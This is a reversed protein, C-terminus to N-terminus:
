NIRMDTNEEIHSEDQLRESTRKATYSSFPETSLSSHYSFKSPDKSAHVQASILNSTILCSSQSSGRSINSATSDALVSDMLHSSSSVALPFPPDRASPTDVGASKRFIKSAIFCSWFHSTNRLASNCEQRRRKQYCTASRDMAVIASTGYGPVNSTPTQSPTRLSQVGRDHLSPSAYRRHVGGEEENIVRQIVPDFSSFLRRSHEPWTKTFMRYCTRATSRVEIMADAVCCKILDEYLDAVRQIEPADAWYELILLAYVCCRNNPDIELAKKIDIEALDLDAQWIYAQARRYLAKVPVTIVVLKFLVLKHLMTLPKLEELKFDLSLGVRFSLEKLSTLQNLGQPLSSHPFSSITLTKLNNNNHTFSMLSKSFVGVDYRLDLTELRPPFLYHPEVKLNPCHLLRLYTINSMMRMWTPLTSGVYNQISLKELSKHPELNELVGEMRRIEAESSVHEIDPRGEKYGFNLGLYSINKKKELEAQKAENVSKVHRLGKISLIGKLFNLNGLEGIVSGKSSGVSVVFKMLTRLQSLREIGGRPYYNLNETGAVELHRLNSLEGIGEPLKCLDYCFNLKLTQLNVLSRVTELEKLIKNRSLDLYRLHLLRSVESPLVEFGPDSYTYSLDLTRLCTLQHLASPVSTSSKAVLTRLKKAEYISSNEIDDVTLHRIKHHVEQAVEIRIFSTLQDLVVSLIAEAM